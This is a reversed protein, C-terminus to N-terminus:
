SNKLEFSITSTRNILYCVTNLVESAICLMSRVHKILTRNMKKTVDYQQLTRPVVLQRKIHHKTCFVKFGKHHSVMCVRTLTILDVM